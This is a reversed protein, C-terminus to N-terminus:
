PPRSTHPIRLRQPKLLRRNWAELWGRLFSAQTHQASWCDATLVLRREFRLSWPCVLNSEFQCGRLQM